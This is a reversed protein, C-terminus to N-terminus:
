LVAECDEPHRLLRLSLMVAASSAPLHGAGVVVAYRRVVARASLFDKLKSRIPEKHDDATVQM